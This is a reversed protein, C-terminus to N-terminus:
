PSGGGRRPSEAGGSVGYGLTRAARRFAAESTAPVALMRDGALLCLGSTARDRSLRVALAPEACEILLAPGREVLAGARRAVDELLQTVPGPLATASRSALFDRVREISDGSQAAALLRERGLVWVRDATREAYRDLALRDSHTLEDGLATVEFNPLVRLAARQAAPTPVYRDVHGLCVAGLANVRIHTLGDYRSVFDLDGAGWLDEGDSRAGGPPVCAVDIIGLTAAYELLLVLAYCTQLIGWGAGGEYGLSGYEPDEIYLRWPDRTVVFGLDAARMHRFMEDVAVWRGVPCDALGEALVARRGALATLGRRGRGGQGKIATVRSLEDILKTSQWKVWTRALTVAPAEGLARTGARTLTLRSGSLAALGGAQVLLPWAFAKIAGVDADDPYFDGGDLVSAVLKVAAAGPRRTTASVTLRGAQILRLVAAVDRQAAHETEVITAAPPADSQGVGSPAPAAVFALLGARVEVPLTRGGCFLLDLASAGTKSRRDRSGWQPESGYKSRFRAADFRGDAAHAAEAVAAQEVAGLGAFIRSLGDGALRAAILAVLEAKRGQVTGGGALAALGRLDDVVLAGLADSATAPPEEDRGRSM